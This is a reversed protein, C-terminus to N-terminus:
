SGARPHGRAAAARHAHRFAAIWFVARFDNPWALMLGTALLPGSFVGVTDLSQRLGPAAGHISPLTTDALLADRPAGRIDKGVRDIVPRM